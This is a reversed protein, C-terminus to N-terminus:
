RVIERDYVRKFVAQWQEKHNKEAVECWHPAAHPNIDTRTNPLYYQYEAYPTVWKLEASGMDSHIISSNILAKSDHKCYYNCNRLATNAVAKVALNLARDASLLMDPGNIQVDVNM